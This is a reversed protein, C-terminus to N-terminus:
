WKRGLRAKVVRGWASPELSEGAACVNPREVLLNPPCNHHFTWALWPVELREAM